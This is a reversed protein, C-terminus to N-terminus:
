ARGKKREIQSELQAASRGVALAVRSLQVKQVILIFNSTALHAPAATTKAEGKNNSVGRPAFV